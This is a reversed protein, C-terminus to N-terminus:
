YNNSRTANNMAKGRVTTKYIEDILQKSERQLLLLEEEPKGPIQFFPVSRHYFSVWVQLCSVHHNVPLYKKSEPVGPFFQKDMIMSLHSPDHLNNRDPRRPIGFLPNEWNKIYELSFQLGWNWASSPNLPTEPNRRAMSRDHESDFLFTDFMPVLATDWLDVM